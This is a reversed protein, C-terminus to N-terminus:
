VQVEGTAWVVMDDRYSDIDPVLRDALGCGYGAHSDRSFHLLASSLVWWAMGWGVCLVGVSTYSGDDGMHPCHMVEHESVRALVVYGIASGGGMRPCRGVNQCAGVLRTPWMSATCLGWGEHQHLGVGTGGMHPCYVLKTGNRAGRGGLRAGGRDSVGVARCDRDDTGLVKNALQM